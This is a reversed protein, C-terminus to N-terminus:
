TMNPPRSESERYVREMSPTYTGEKNGYPCRIWSPLDTDHRGDEPGPGCSLDRIPVEDDPTKEALNRLAKVLEEGTGQWQKVCKVLEPDFELDGVVPHTLGEAVARASPNTRAACAIRAACAAGAPGVLCIIGCDQM